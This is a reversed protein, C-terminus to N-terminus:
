LTMEMCIKLINMGAMRWAKVKAWIIKDSRNKNGNVRNLVHQKARKAFKRHIFNLKNLSLWFVFCSNQKWDQKKWKRENRAHWTKELIWKHGTRCESCWIRKNKMTECLRIGFTILNISNINIGKGYIYTCIMQSIRLGYISVFLDKESDDIQM